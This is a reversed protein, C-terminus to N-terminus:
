ALENATIKELVQPDTTMIPITHYVLTCFSQLGYMSVRAKEGGLVRECM